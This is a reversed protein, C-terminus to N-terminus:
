GVARARGQGGPTHDISAEGVLQVRGASDAQYLQMTGGPLPRDGFPSGRGRKFTYWVQVPVQNADSGIQGM